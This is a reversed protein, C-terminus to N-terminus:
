EKREDDPVILSLSVVDLLRVTYALMKLVPSVSVESPEDLTRKHRDSYLRRSAKHTWFISTAYLGDDLPELRFWGAVEPSDSDSRSPIVDEHNYYIVRLSNDSISERVLEAARKDYIYAKGHLWFKGPKVICVQTALGGRAGFLDDFTIM